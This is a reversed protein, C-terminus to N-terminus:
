GNVCAVGLGIGAGYASIASGAFGYGAALGLPGTAPISMFGYFSGVASLTAGLFSIGAAACAVTYLHWSALILLTLRIIM